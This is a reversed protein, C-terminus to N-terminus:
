AAAEAMAGHWVLTAPYAERVTARHEGAFFARRSTIRGALLRLMRLGQSTLKANSVQDDERWSIPFFGITRGHHVLGLILYYNFTLDDAYRWHFGDDFIATRFLNLGSGLDYLRRGAVISFIANFVHNAVTRLRSYGQLRAGPQFRAGLLADTLVHEGAALLPLIDALSGQDDGHLVILHDFGHDRAFGFAVKHSGGLGYNDNNQLLWAEPLAARALATRAMELTDDRSRNDILLVALDVGAAVAREVQSVVRGIQNACNYM